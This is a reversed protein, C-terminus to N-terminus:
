FNLTAFEGFHIIAAKDYAKAAFEKTKFNGLFLTHGKVKIQARIKNNVIYVGKYRTIDRTRNACNQSQTGNRLNHEQNDLGNHNIHDCKLYKPTKMIENHMYIVTRKGKANPIDRRAAYYTTKDRKAYWNYKNLWEYNWDDVVAILNHNKTGTKSLIIEKM